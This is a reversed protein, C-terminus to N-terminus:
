LQQVNDMGCEVNMCLLVIQWGIIVLLIVLVEEGDAFAKLLDKMLIHMQDLNLYIMNMLGFEKLLKIYQKSTM